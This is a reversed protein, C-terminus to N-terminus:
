RGLVSALRPSVPIGQREADQRRLRSGEGPIYFGPVDHEIQAFFDRMQEAFTSRDTFQAFDIAIFIDGKTPPDTMWRTGTVRHNAVAGVVPGALMAVLLSLFSGKLGGGLPLLGGRLAAEPDTTPLGSEDVAMGPPLPEGRDRHDLLVGRTTAATAFDVTVNTGDLPFAYAIPNTGLIATRGGPVVVAPSTTTMVIGLQGSEAAQEAWPALIGLHGAHVVGVAAIGASEAKKVALAMAATAIPAGLGSRADIVALGPADVLQRSDAAPSLTGKGFGDLIEFIREVGHHIYGRATGEVLHAATVRADETPVGEDRLVRVLGQEVDAIPMRRYEDAIPASM